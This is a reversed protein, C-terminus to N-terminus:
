DPTKKTLKCMEQFSQAEILLFISFIINNYVYEVGRELTEITSKLCTFTQQSVMEQYPFKSCLQKVQELYLLLLEILLPGSNGPFICFIFQTGQISLM